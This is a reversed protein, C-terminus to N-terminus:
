KIITVTDNVTITGKNLAVLNQGFNVDGNEATRYTSLTKLPEGNKDRAASDPNVNIFICRSCPKVLEFIVDGIKIQRWDDEAFPLAGSVVINARFQAMSIEKSLRQNLETLSAENTLLLPYGDAFSLSTNYHALTRNSQEGLYLIQCPLNLYQSIWRDLEATCYQAQFKDQWVQTNKYQQSFQSKSVILSPMTPANFIFGSATIEIQVLVLKSKTRGTIFKGHLDTVLFMRDGQVGTQTIVASEFNNAAASKMPYINIASLQVQKM